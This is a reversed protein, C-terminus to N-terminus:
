TLTVPSCQTSSPGLYKPPRTQRMVIGGKKLHISVTRRDIGFERALVYVTAGGQYKQCVLFSQEATLRKQSQHLERKRRDGQGDPTSGEYDHPSTRRDTHWPCDSETWNKLTSWKETDCTSLAVRPCSVQRVQNTM